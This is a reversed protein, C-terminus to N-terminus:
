HASRTPGRADPDCVEIANPPGANTRGVVVVATVDAVSRSPLATVDPKLTPTPPTTVLEDHASPV